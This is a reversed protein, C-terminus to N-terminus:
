NFVRAVNRVIARIARHVEPTLDLFMMGNRYLDGEKESWRSQAIFKIESIEIGHHILSSQLDEVHIELTFDHHLPLPSKSFLLLGETTVDAMHGIVEWDASNYIPLFLLLDWRKVLKRNEPM